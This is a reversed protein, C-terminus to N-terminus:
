RAPIGINGMTLTVVSSFIDEIYLCHYTVSSGLVTWSSYSGFNCPSLASFFSCLVTLLTPSCDVNSRIATPSQTTLLFDWASIALFYPMGLLLTCCAMDLFFSCLFPPLCYQCSLFLFADSSPETPLLFDLLLSPSFSSFSSSFASVLGASTVSLLLSSSLLSSNGSTLNHLVLELLLNQDKEPGGGDEWQFYLQFAKFM